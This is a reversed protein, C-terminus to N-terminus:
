NITGSCFRLTKDSSAVFCKVIRVSSSLWVIKLCYRMLAYMSWSSRYFWIWVREGKAWLHKLSLSKFSIGPNFTALSSTALRYSVHFSWSLDDIVCFSCFATLCIVFTRDKIWNIMVGACWWTTPYSVSVSSSEEARTNLHM